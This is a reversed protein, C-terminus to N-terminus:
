PADIALMALARVHARRIAEDIAQPTADAPALPAGLVVAVRSGPLPLEFRDWSSLSVKCRCASAMPVVLGRALEAAIAVGARGNSAGVIERPGRPGDVAFAGDIGDRMRRVIAKLGSAGGRSTSGREVVFGLRPLARALREGDRSRSVLAATKKKRGWAYLAFQQGHWLALAWPKRDDLAEDVEFRVRLSRIWARAIAELIM